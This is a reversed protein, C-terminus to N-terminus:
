EGYIKEAKHYEIKARHMRTRVAGVSINEAQAIGEYDKGEILALKLMRGLSVPIKSIVSLIHDLTVKDEFDDKSFSLDADLEVYELFM